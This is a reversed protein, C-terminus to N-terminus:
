LRLTTEFLRYAILFSSPVSEMFKDDYLDKPMLKKAFEHDKQAKGSNLYKKAEIFVKNKSFENIAPHNTATHYFMFAEDTALKFEDSGKSSLEHYRDM